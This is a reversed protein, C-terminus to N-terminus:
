QHKSGGVNGQHDGSVNQSATIHIVASLARKSLTHAEVLTPTPNIISLFRTTTWNLRFQRYVHTNTYKCTHTHTHLTCHYDRLSLRKSGAGVRLGWTVTLSPSVSLFCCFYVQFTAQQQTTCCYVDQVDVSKCLICHLSSQTIPLILFLCFLIFFFCSHM